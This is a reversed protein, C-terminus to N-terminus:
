CTYPNDRSKLQSFKGWYLCCIVNQSHLLKLTFFLLSFLLFNFIFIVYGVFEWLSFHPSLLSLFPLFLSFSNSLFYHCLFSLWLSFNFFSLASFSCFFLSCVRVFVIFLSVSFYVFLCFLCILFLPLCIKSLQSDKHLSINVHM